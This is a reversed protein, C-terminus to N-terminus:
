IKHIFFLMAFLYIIEFELSGKPGGKNAKIRALEANEDSRAGHNYFFSASCFAIAAEFEPSGRRPWRWDSADECESPTGKPDLGLVGFFFCRPHSARIKKSTIPMNLLVIHVTKAKKTLIEITKPQNGSQISLKQENSHISKTYQKMNLNFHLQGKPFTM